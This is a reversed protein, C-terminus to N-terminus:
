PSVTASGAKLAEGLAKASEHRMSKDKELARRVEKELWEPVGLEPALAPPSEQVHKNVVQIPNEADFPPQGSLCEYM